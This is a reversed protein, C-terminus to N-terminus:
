ISHSISYNSLGERVIETYLGLQTGPRIAEAPPLLDSFSSAESELQAALDSTKQKWQKWVGVCILCDSDASAQLSLFSPHHPVWHFEDYSVRRNLISGTITFPADEPATRSIPGASSFAKLCIDCLM